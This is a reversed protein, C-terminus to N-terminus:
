ANEGQGSKNIEQTGNKEERRSGITVEPDTTEDRANTM